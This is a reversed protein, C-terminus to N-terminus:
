ETPGRMRGPHDVLDGRGPHRGCAVVEPHGTAPTWSQPPHGQSGPLAKKLTIADQRVPPFPCQRRARSLLRLTRASIECLTPPRKIKCFLRAACKRKRHTPASVFARRHGLWGAIPHVGWRAGCPRARPQTWRQRPSRAMRAKPLLRRLKPASPRSVEMAAKSLRTLTELARSAGSCNSLTALAGFGASAV